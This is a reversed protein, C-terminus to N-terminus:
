ACRRCLGFFELSHRKVTAGIRRKIEQEMQSVTCNSVDSISGCAECVFHHHAPIHAYEYRFKGEHLHVARVLGKKEFAHLVRFLTVPDAHVRQKELLEGIASVDLPFESQKLVSLVGLRAPTVKLGVERLEQGCDRSDM